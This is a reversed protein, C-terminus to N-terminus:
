ASSTFSTNTRSRIPAADQASLSRERWQQEFARVEGLRASAWL